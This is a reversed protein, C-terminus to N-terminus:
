RRVDSEREVACRLWGDRFPRSVPPSQWREQWQKHGSEKPNEPHPWAQKASRKDPRYGWAVTPMGAPPSHSSGDAKDCPAEQDQGAMPDDRRLDAPRARRSRRWKAGGRRPGREPAGATVGPLAAHPRQFPVDGQGIGGIKQRNQSTGCRCTYPSILPPPVAVAAIPATWPCLSGASPM